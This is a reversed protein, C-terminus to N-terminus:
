PGHGGSRTWFRRRAVNAHALGWAENQFDADSDRAGGELFLYQLGLELPQNRSISNEACRCDNQNRVGWDTGVLTVQISGLQASGSVILLM